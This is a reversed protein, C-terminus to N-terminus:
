LVLIMPERSDPRFGVKVGGTTGYIDTVVALAPAIDDTWGYAEVKNGKQGVSILLRHFSMYDLSLTMPVSVDPAISCLLPGVDFGCGDKFGANIQHPGGDVIGAGCWTLIELNNGDWWNSVAIAPSETRLVLGAQDPIPVDADRMVAWEKFAPRKDKYILRYEKAWFQGSYNIEDSLRVKVQESEAMGEMKWKGTDSYNVPSLARLTLLSPHTTKTDSQVNPLSITAYFLYSIAQENTYLYLPFVSDTDGPAETDTAESLPDYCPVITYSYSERDWHIGETAYNMRTILSDDHFHHLSIYKELEDESMIVPNHQADELALVLSVPAQNLGNGYIEAGRAKNESYILRFGAVYKVKDAVPENNKMIDTNMMKSRQKIRIHEADAHKNLIFINHTIQPFIGSTAMRAKWSEVSM